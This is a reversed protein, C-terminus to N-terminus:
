LMDTDLFVAGMMIVGEGLAWLLNTILVVKDKQIYGYVAWALSLFTYLAWSWFSVGAASHDVFWIEAIQPVTSLPGVFIIIKIFVDFAHSPSHAAEQSESTVIRREQQKM